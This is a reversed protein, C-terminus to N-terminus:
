ILDKEKLNIWASVEVITGIFLSNDSDIYYVAYLNDQYIKIEYTEDM